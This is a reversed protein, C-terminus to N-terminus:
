RAVIRVVATLRGDATLQPAAVLDCRQVELLARLGEAVAAVREQRDADMLLAIQETTMEGM